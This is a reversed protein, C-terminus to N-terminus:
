LITFIGTIQGALYRPIINFRVALEISQRINGPASRTCNAQVPYIEHEKHVIKLEYWRVSPRIKGGHVSHIGRACLEFDSAQGSGRLPLRLARDM